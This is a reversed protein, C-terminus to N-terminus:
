KSNTKLSRVIALCDQLVAGARAHEPLHEYKSPVIERLMKDETQAIVALRSEEAIKEREVPECSACVRGGFGLWDKELMDGCACYVESERRGEEKSLEKEKRIISKIKGKRTGLNTASTYIGLRNPEDKKIALGEDISDIQEDILTEWDQKEQHSVCECDVVTEETSGCRECGGCYGSNIVNYGYGRCKPCEEKGYKYEKTEEGQRSCTCTDHNKCNGYECMDCKTVTPCLREHQITPPCQCGKCTLVFEKGEAAHALSNM